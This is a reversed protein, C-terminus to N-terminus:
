QQTLETVVCRFGVEKRARRSMAVNTGVLLASWSDALSVKPAEQSEPGCYADGQEGHDLGFIPARQPWPSNDTMVKLSTMELISSGMNEVGYPSKDMTKVYKSCDELSL